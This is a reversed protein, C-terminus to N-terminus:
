GVMNSRMWSELIIAAAFADLPKGTSEGGQLAQAECSTYAENERYIEVNYRMEMEIIFTEIKKELPHPRGDALEPKGIIVTKVQWDQFIQDIKQWMEGNQYVVQLPNTSGTITQGVAFGIKKDGYDIGLITAM